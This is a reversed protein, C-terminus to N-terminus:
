FGLAQRQDARRDPLRLQSREAAGRRSSPEGGSELTQDALELRGQEGRARQRARCRLQLVARILGLEGAEIVGVHVSPVRGPAVIGMGGKAFDRDAQALSRLSPAGAWHEEVPEVVQGLLLELQHGRQHAGAGDRDGDVVLVPLRKRGPGRQQRPQAVLEAAHLLGVSAKSSVYVSLAM